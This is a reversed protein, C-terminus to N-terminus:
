HLIANGPGPKGAIRRVDKDIGMKAAEAEELEDRRRLLRMPRRPLWSPARVTPHPPGPARSFRIRRLPVGDSRVIRLVVCTRNGSCSLRSEARTAEKQSGPAM